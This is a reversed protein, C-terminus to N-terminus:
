AASSVVDGLLGIPLLIADVVRSEIGSVKDVTGLVELEDYNTPLIALLTGNVVVRTRATPHSTQFASDLLGVVVNDLFALGLTGTGVADARIEALARTRLKGLAADRVDAVLNSKVHDPRHFAIADRQMEVRRRDVVAADVDRGQTFDRLLLKPVEGDVLLPTL